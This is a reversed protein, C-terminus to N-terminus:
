YDNGTIQYFSKFLYTHQKCVCYNANISNETLNLYANIKLIQFTPPPPFAYGAIPTCSHNFMSRERYHWTCRCSWPSPIFSFKWSDPFAETYFRHSVYARRFFLTFFFLNLPRFSILSFKFQNINYMILMKILLAFGFCWKFILSLYHHEWQSIYCFLNFLQMKLVGHGAQSQQSSCTCLRPFTM